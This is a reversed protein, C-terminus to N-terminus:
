YSLWTRGLNFEYVWRPYEHVRTYEALWSNALRHATQHVQTMLLEVRDQGNWTNSLVGEAILADRRNTAEVVLRRGEALESAEGLYALLQLRAIYLRTNEHREWRADLLAQRAM